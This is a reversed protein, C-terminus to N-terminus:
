KKIYMKMTTHVNQGKLKRLMNTQTNNEPQKTQCKM